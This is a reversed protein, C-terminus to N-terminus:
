RVSEHLPLNMLWQQMWRIRDLMNVSSIMSRKPYMCKRTINVALRLRSSVLRRHNSLPRHLHVRPLNKLQLLRHPLSIRANREMHGKNKHRKRPGITRKSSLFVCRLYSIDTSDADCRRTNVYRMLLRRSPRTWKTRRSNTRFRWNRFVLFRCRAFCISCSDFDNVSMILSSRNCYCSVTQEVRALFDRTENKLRELPNSAFLDFIKLEDLTKKKNKSTAIDTTLSKKLKAIFENDEPLPAFLGDLAECVDSEYNRFSFSSPISIEKVSKPTTAFNLQLAEM